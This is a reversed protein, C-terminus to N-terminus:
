QKRRPPLIVQKMVCEGFYRQLKSYTQDKYVEGDWEDKQQDSPNEELLTRM